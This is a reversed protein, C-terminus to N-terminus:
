KDALYPRQRKDREKQQETLSQHIPYINNIINPKEINNNKNQKNTIDRITNGNGINVGTNKNNFNKNSM